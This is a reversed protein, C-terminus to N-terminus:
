TMQESVDDMSLVYDTESMRRERLTASRWSRWAIATEHTSSGWRDPIYFLSLLASAADIENKNLDYKALANGLLVSQSHIRLACLDILWERVRNSILANKSFSHYGQM